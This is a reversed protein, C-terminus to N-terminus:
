TETQEAITEFEDITVILTKEFQELIRLDKDGTILYDAEGDKALALLFNDKPDRCAVVISHVDVLEAEARLLSVLADYDSQSIRKALYPKRLARALDDFLGNSVLLRYRLDFVIKLREHFRPSWLSSIWANADVILRTKKKKNKQM